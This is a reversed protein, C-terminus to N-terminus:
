APEGLFECRESPSLGNKTQKSQGQAEGQRASYFFAERGPILRPSIKYDKPGQTYDKRRGRARFAQPDSSLGGKHEEDSTSYSRRIVPSVM